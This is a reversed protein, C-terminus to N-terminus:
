NLMASGHVLQGDLALASAMFSDDAQPPLGLQPVMAAPSWEPMGPTWVSTSLDISGQALMKRIVEISVPGLLEGNRAYHWPTADSSSSEIEVRYTEGAAVAPVQQWSAFRFRGVAEEVDQERLEAPKQKYEVADLSFGRVVRDWIQECIQASDFLDLGVVRSGIAVLFGNAGPTYKINSQYGDLEKEVHQYTDSMAQTESHASLCQQKRSIENWVAGQDAEHEGNERISDMTSKRLIKRISPPAAEPSPQFQASKYGWRGQEVCSVPITSSSQPALLVTTNSVRNQKAGILQDGDIFLVFSPSVNEVHLTSVSGQQNVEQVQVLGKTMAESGLLYNAQEAFHAKLPVVTMSGHQQRPMCEITPIKLM